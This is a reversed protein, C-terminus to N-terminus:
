TLLCFISNTEEEDFRLLEASFISILRFIRCLERSNFSVKGSKKQVLLQTIRIIKKNRVVIAFFIKQRINLFAFMIISSYFNEWPFSSLSIKCYPLNFRSYSFFDRDCSSNKTFNFPNTTSNLFKRSIMKQSTFKHKVYSAKM